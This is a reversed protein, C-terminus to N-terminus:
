DPTTLTEFIHIIDLPNNYKTVLKQGRSRGRFIEQKLM